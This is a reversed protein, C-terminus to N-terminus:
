KNYDPLYYNDLKQLRTEGILTPLIIQLPSAGKIRGKNDKIIHYYNYSLEWFFGKMEESHKGPIPNIFV